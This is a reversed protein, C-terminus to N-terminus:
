RQKPFQNFKLLTLTAKLIKTSHAIEMIQDDGQALIALHEGEYHQGTISKKLRLIANTCRSYDSDSTFDNRLFFARQSLDALDINLKIEVAISRIETHYKYACDFITGTDTILSDAAKVVMERRAKDRDRRTSLQDVIFWGVILGVVQTLTTVVVPLNKALFDTSSVFWSIAEGEQMM